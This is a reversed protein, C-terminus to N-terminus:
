LLETMIQPKKENKFRERISQSAKENQTGVNGKVFADILQKADGVMEDLIRDKEAQQMASDREALSAGEGATAAAAELAVM